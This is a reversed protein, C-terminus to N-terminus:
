RAIEAKHGLVPTREPNESDGLVEAWSREGLWQGQLRAFTRAFAAGPPAGGWVVERWEVGGWAVGGWGLGGWRWRQEMNIYM